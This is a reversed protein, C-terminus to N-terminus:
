NFSFAELYQRKFPTPYAGATGPVLKARDINLQSPENYNDTWYLLKADVLNVHWIPSNRQFNLFESQLVLIATNAKIDYEIIQHSKLSNYLFYFVRKGLMDEYSGIVQNTGGPLSYTVLTTGKINTIAGFNSGDSIGARVNLAYRYEGDQLLRDELDQNMGALFINQDIPM